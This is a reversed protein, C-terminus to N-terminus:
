HGNARRREALAIFADISGPNAMSSRNCAKEPPQGLLIKKVPVELKKGSITRPVEAIQLVEDPVHRASLQTRIAERIRTVLANNYQDEHRTVVFLAMWSPRGLYELDIVLSDAIEDFSEVVRYLESTGMRIGHRNITSDSRGYIIGGVAHERPVLKLWDGHRWVGPYTDFYSEFYRRGDTDGWFYLPMSPLPETCVLEGVENILPQGSEDFAQVAAGLGRAQMEGAYVPAIPCTGLFATNPDTGGSISALLIDPHVERYIWRYGDETLPSGTAGVTKLASLDHSAGPRMAAKINLQVFAPSLGFFNAKEKAAFDWLTDLSPYGPNGDFLLVTCGAILASVTMNWMIWNTSTFWFFRDGPSLDCHLSMAKLYEITTGGHGHVIPKPMGTTGSSYVIWLPHDFPLPVPAFASSTRLADAWGLLQLSRGTARPEAAGRSAGGPLQSGDAQPHLYPVFIVAQLSPLQAILEQVVNQRDFDKGGYRYGDVAILVKPEIQRFRDLVGASGMDPACSSWVAGSATAALMAVVTQPINPMYAVVRDGAVVGLQKLTAQLAGAQSALQSWSIVEHHVLESKFILAPREAFVTDSARWLMQDAYNVQAGEFWRAGPMTRQTLVSDPQRAARMGCWAWIASWFGELDTTSWAWLAEYDNFSLGKAERLWSMFQTLQAAAIRERSPTWLPTAPLESPASLPDAAISGSM